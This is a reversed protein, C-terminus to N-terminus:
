NHHLSVADDRPKMWRRSAAVQPQAQLRSTELRFCCAFGRTQAVTLPSLCTVTHKYARKSICVQLQIANANTAASLVYLLDAALQTKMNRRGSKCVRRSCACCVDAARCTARESLLWSTKQMKRHLNHYNSEYSAWPICFSLRGEGCTL